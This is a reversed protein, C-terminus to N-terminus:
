TKVSNKIDVLIEGEPVTSNRSDGEVMTFRSKGQINGVEVSVYM